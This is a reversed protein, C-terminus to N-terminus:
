PRYVHLTRERLATSFIHIRIADQCLASAVREPWEVFCYSQYAHLCPELYSLAEQPDHLRYLDFHYVPTGGATVYEHMLTYTPSSVVDKVELSACLAKILTTKGTGVDGHLLWLKCPGAQETVKQATDQLTDPTSYFTLPPINSMNQM